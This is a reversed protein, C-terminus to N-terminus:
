FNGKNNSKFNFLKAGLRGFLTLGYYVFGLGLIMHYCTSYVRLAQGYTAACYSEDFYILGVIVLTTLILKVILAATSNGKLKM